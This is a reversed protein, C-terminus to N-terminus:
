CTYQPSNNIRYVVHGLFESKVNPTPIYYKEKSMLKNKWLCVEHTQLAHVEKNKNEM